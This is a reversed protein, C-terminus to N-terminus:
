GESDILSLLEQLGLSFQEGSRKAQEGIHWGLEAKQKQIQAIKEEVSDQMILKYVFVPNEQGIRHARDSAQQEAASNWWPDYHIVTDARTLNLGVGGAKLSILFVKAEGQQFADVLAGRNQSKGTLMLYDIKRADLEEALLDLMSTFQSFVLVARDEAVLEELMELCYQRKASSISNEGLLAPDCCAQRLKMLAALVQIQQQGAGRNDSFKLELGERESHRLQQYLARQDEAMDIHQVIETKPPLDTAVQDKTRRLMFPSIRRLLQEFRAENAEQEIPKRYHRRFQQNSGLCGPMLFDFISWLEGLHNEVPTGTLCLKHAPQLQKVAQSARTKPNKIMQAEDLIVWSLPQQQWQELDRAVLAYSTIILDYHKIRDWNDHRKTGHQILCRLSPAFRRIEESWNHLLSTPVVILAPEDLQGMQQELYLHAITQITKGLGMDDALLGNFGCQRLHQLWCLGTQQYSRLEAGLFVKGPLLPPPQHIAQARDLLNVEGEWIADNPLLDQLDVLRGLQTDPLTGTCADGIIDALEERLGNVQEAALLLKRGGPLSVQYLNELLPRKHLQTLVKILDVSMGETYISLALRWQQGDEGTQLEVQWKEPQVYHHRFGKDFLCYFGDAELAPRAELMFTRWTAEQRSWWCTAQDSWDFQSLYAELRSSLAQERDPSRQLTHAQEGDWYTIAQEKASAHFVACLGEGCYRFMLQLGDRPAGHFATSLSAFRVVPILQAEEVITKPKVPLPLDLAQWREAHQQLFGDVQHYELVSNQVIAESFAEPPLDCEAADIVGSREWFLYPSPCFFLKSGVPKQWHFRQCGWEDSEWSAHIERESRKHDTASAFIKILCGADVYCHGTKLLQQIFEDGSTKPMVGTNKDLWASSDDLLQRLLSLDRADLYPPPTHLHDPSISYATGPPVPHEQEFEMLLLHLQALRLKGDIKLVFCLRLSQNASAQQQRLNALFSM